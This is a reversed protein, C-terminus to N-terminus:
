PLEIIARQGDGSPPWSFRRQVGLGASYLPAREAVPRDSRVRNESLDTHSGALGSLLYRLRGLNLQGLQPQKM